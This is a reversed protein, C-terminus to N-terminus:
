NKNLSSLTHQVKTFTNSYITSSTLLVASKLTSTASFNVCCHCVIHSLWKIGLMDKITISVTDVTTHSQLAHPYGFHCKRTGNTQQHQCYKSLPYDASPHHHLMFKKVLAADDLDAPMEASVVSDIDASTTCSHSYKILIHTHPLGCKQFEICHICYVQRGANLLMSKLTKLLM